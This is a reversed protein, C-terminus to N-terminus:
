VLFGSEVLGLILSDYLCVSLSLNFNPAWSQVDSVSDARMNNFAKPLRYIQEKDIIVDYIIEGLKMAKWVM